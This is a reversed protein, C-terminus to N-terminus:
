FVRWPCTDGKQRFAPRRTILYGEDGYHIANHTDLSVCVLYEPDLVYDLNHELDDITIPNMHHIYLYGKIEWGEIGLDCGNDRIIVENRVHSWMDSHYLTQNMHRDRGFTEAGVCGKLELYKFREDFTGLKSLESYTRMMM